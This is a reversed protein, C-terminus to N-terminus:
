SFTKVRVSQSQYGSFGLQNQSLKPAELNVMVHGRTPQNSQVQLKFFLRGKAKVDDSKKSLMHCANTHLIQQRKRPPSMRELRCATHESEAALMKIRSIEM